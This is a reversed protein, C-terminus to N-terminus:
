FVNGGPGKRGTLFVGAMHDFGQPAARGTDSGSPWGLATSRTTRSQGALMMAAARKLSRGDFAQDRCAAESHLRRDGGPKLGLAARLKSEMGAPGLALLSALRARQSALHAM